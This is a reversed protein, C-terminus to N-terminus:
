GAYDSSNVFALFGDYSNFFRHEGYIDLAYYYYSTEEPYLAAKIAAMGPNSIAGVPLGEYKYTNYPSDLETSFDEGTENIVYNITSDFQLYPFSSSNLRNYIVSAIMARDEDGAAEEEILSAVTVIEDMTYGLSEARAILDDDFRNNFNSLFKKIVADADQGIYFEYTDPFLYGELRKTEGLTSSDLFDYDFDYNTACDWLKDAKCVGREELLNFTQMLTYGEPITVSVSVRTGGAPTLGSVIARYDYNTYLLYTGEKVKDEVNAFGGYFKFLGRYNIVGNEYLIQALSDIDYGEPVTIEVTEEPKGLALVDTAAFWCVCALLTSVAVIFIFYMIGGLIGVRREKRFQVPNGGMDPQPDKSDTLAKIKIFKQHKPTRTRRGGRAAGSAQSMKENGNARFTGVSSKRKDAPSTKEISNKVPATEIPESSKTDFIRTFDEDDAFRNWKDNYDAM